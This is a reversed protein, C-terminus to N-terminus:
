NEKLDQYLSKLKREEIETLSQKRKLELIENKIKNRNQILDYEYRDRYGYSQLKEIERVELPMLSNIIEEQDQQFHKPIIFKQGLKEISEDIFLGPGETALEILIGGPERFYLSKFYNRDKIETPQYGKELLLIRYANIEDNNVSFAIHHVTGVAVHGRKHAKKSLEILGGISDNIKLQYYEDNQDVIKYGLIDTLLSLTLTPAKSFLAALHIGKFAKKKDVGNFSWANTNDLDNEIFEIELGDPDIFRLRNLNFRSYEFSKTKFHNLRNRWFEFGEFSVAYSVYGVQGAGIKGKVANTMPFTTVIGNSGNKNGYYLHYGDKDDYNLTKKVLRLGLVGSYFDINKQAHGVISSVHHIGKVKLM